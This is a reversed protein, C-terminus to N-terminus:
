YLSLETHVGHTWPCDQLNRGDASDFSFIVGQPVRATTKTFLIKFCVQLVGVFVLSLRLTKFFRLSSVFDEKGRNEHERTHVLAYLINEEKEEKESM